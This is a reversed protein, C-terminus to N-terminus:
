ALMSALAPLFPAFITMHNAAAAMFVQYEEVFGASGQADEMKRIAAKIEELTESQLDAEDAAKRLEKFVTHTQSTMALNNSNDETNINVRANPGSVNNIITQAPTSPTDSRRIKAQYHPNIHPPIGAQYGPDEVIFEEVLGSQM